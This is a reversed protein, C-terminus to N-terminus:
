SFDIEDIPDSIIYEKVIGSYVAVSLEKRKKLTKNTNGLESAMRKKRSSSSNGRLDLDAKIEAFHERIYNLVKYEILWKFYLLQGITTDFAEDKNVPMKIYPSSAPKRCCPDFHHKKNENLIKKYSNHVNFCMKTLPSHEREKGIMEYQTGYQKAYNTVFWDILRLAIQKNVIIDVLITKYEVNSFFSMVKELSLDDANLHESM